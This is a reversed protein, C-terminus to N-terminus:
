HFIRCLSSIVMRENVVEIRGRYGNKNKVQWHFFEENPYSFRDLIAMMSGGHIIFVVEECSEEMAKQIGKEFGNICRKIFDDRGEGSPFALMGNSDIWAQYDPNDKLDEYSKYEFEGFDIEKLEDIISYNQEPYMLKCTEMCRIMPSIFIIDAKPPVLKKIEEKEEQLLGEDTRGIYRGEMNGKTKGHRILSVYM